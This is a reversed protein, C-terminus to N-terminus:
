HTIKNVKFKTVIPKFFPYIFYPIVIILLVLCPWKLIPDIDSHFGLYITYLDFLGILLGVLPFILLDLITSLKQAIKEMIKGRNM